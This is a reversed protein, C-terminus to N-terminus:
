CSTGARVVPSFSSDNLLIGKMSHWLPHLSNGIPRSPSFMTSHPRRWDWYFGPGSGRPLSAVRKGALLKCGCNVCDKTM